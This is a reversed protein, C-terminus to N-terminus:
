KELKDACNNQICEDCEDCEVFEKMGEMHVYYAGRCTEMLGYLALGLLISSTTRYMINYIRARGIPIPQIWPHQFRSKDLENSFLPPSSKTLLLHHPSALPNNFINHFLKNM